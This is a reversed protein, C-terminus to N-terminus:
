HYSEPSKYNSWFTKSRETGDAFTVIQTWKAKLSGPGAWGYDWYHPGDFRVERGDKTGYYTFILQDANIEGQIFIYNETDNLFKFDPAPDYITADTGYPKYYEVPYSHWQRETIQLGSNMAGRFITSGLQCLGGGYEKITKGPKIVLEPLYGTEANVKGLHKLLSYEEGPAVLIGTLKDTGVSINHRRASPSGAFNSEGVGIVETIGLEEINEQTVDAGTIKRTLALARPRNKKKVAHEISRMAHELLISEGSTSEEILSLKGDESREFRANKPEIEVEPNIETSIFASLKESNLTATFQSYNKNMKKGLSSLIFADLNLYEKKLHDARKLKNQSTGTEFTLMENLQEKTLTFHKGDSSLHIDSSSIIKADHRAKRSSSFLTRPYTKEFPIAIRPTLTQISDVMRLYFLTDNLEKGTKGPNLILTSDANSLTNDKAGRELLNLKNELYSNFVDDNTAHLLQHKTGYLASTVFAFVARHPLTTHTEQFAINVSAAADIHIGLQELQVEEDINESTLKLNQAYTNIHKQLEDQAEKPTKGSVDIPGISTGPYFTHAYQMGIYVYGSLM